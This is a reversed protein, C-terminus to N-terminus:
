SFGIFIETPGAPALYVVIPLSFVPLSVIRLVAPTKTISCIATPNTSSPLTM